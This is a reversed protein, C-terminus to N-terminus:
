DDDKKAKKVAKKVAKKATEAKAAVVKAAKEVAKRADKAAESVTAQVAHAAKEVAEAVPAAPAPAAPKPEPAPPQSGGPPNSSQMAKLVEEAHRETDVNHFVHLVHGDKGVLFSKRLPGVGWKSEGWAGYAEHVAHDADSLLEFPLAHMGAFAEHTAVSDRSIGLIEVDVAALAKWGDRLSCAQRTCGPTDDKPYFYVLVNKTGRYGALSVIRGSRGALAFDPAASGAAPLRRKVVMPPPAESARLIVANRAMPVPASSIEPAHSSGGDQGGSGEFRPAAPSKGGVEQGEVREAEGGGGHRGRDRDLVSRRERDDVVKGERGDPLLEAPGTLGMRGPGHLDAEDRRDRDDPEEGPLDPAEPDRGDDVRFHGIAARGPEKPPRRQVGEDPLQQRRHRDDRRIERLRADEGAEGNAPLGFGLPRGADDLLETRLRDEDLSALGDSPVDHVAKEIPAGPRGETPGPKPGAVVMADASGQRRSDSGIKCQSLCKRVGDPLGEVVGVAGEGRGGAEGCAPSREPM